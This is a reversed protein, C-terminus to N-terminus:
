SSSVATGTVQLASTKLSALSVKFYESGSSVDFPHVSVNEFVYEVSSESEVRRLSVFLSNSSPTGGVYFLHTGLKVSVQKNSYLEFVADSELKTTPSTLGVSVVNEPTYYWYLQVRM